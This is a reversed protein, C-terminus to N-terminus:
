LKFIRLFMLTILGGLAAWLAYTSWHTRDKPLPYYKTETHYHHIEKIERIITDPPCDSHVYTTNHYHYVTTKIGNSDHQIPNTVTSKALVSDAIAETTSGIKEVTDTIKDTSDSKNTSDTKILEPHKQILKAMREGPTCSNIAFLITAILVSFKLLAILVDTKLLKVM